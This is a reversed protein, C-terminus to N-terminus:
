RKKEKRDRDKLTIKKMGEVDKKLLQIIRKFDLEEKNMQRIIEMARRLVKNQMRLKRNENRLRKNEKQLKELKRELISITNIAKAYRLQLEENERIIEDKTM